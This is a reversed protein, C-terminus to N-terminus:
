TKFLLLLWQFNFRRVSYNGVWVQCNLLQSDDSQSRDTLPRHGVWSQDLSAFGVHHKRDVFGKQLSALLGRLITHGLGQHGTYRGRFGEQSVLLPLIPVVGLFPPFLQRLVCENFLCWWGLDCWTVYSLAWQVRSNMGFKIVKVTVACVFEFKPLQFFWWGCNIVEFCFFALLCVCPFELGWNM